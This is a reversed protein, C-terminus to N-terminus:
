NINYNDIAQQVTQPDMKRIAQTMMEGMEQNAQIAILLDLAMQDESTARRPM